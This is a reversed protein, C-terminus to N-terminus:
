FGQCGRSSSSGWVPSVTASYAVGFSLGQLTKVGCTSYVCLRAPGASPPRRNGPGQGRSLHWRERPAPRLAYSEAMAMAMCDAPVLLSIPITDVDWFESCRALWVGLFRAAPQALAGSVTTPVESSVCGTARNSRCDHREVQTVRLSLVTLEPGCAPDWLRLLLRDSVPFAASAIGVYGDATGPRRRRM